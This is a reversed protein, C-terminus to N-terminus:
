PCGDSVNIYLFDRVDFIGDGNPDGPGVTRWLDLATSLDNPTNCGDGDFDFFVQNQSVLVLAQASENEGPPQDTQRVEFWTTENLVDVLTVVAQNAGFVENTNLNEWEWTMGATMCDFQAAFQVAMLGQAITDPQIKVRNGVDLTAAQSVVQGCQGSVLVTYVGEDAATPSSITLVPGTEGLLDADDKRWQYSLLPEGRKGSAAAYNLTPQAEVEFTVATLSSCARTSQPQQTIIPQACKSGAFEDDIRMRVQCRYHGYTQGGYLDNLDPGDSRVRVFFLNLQGAQGPLTVQMGADYPNISWHDQQLFPQGIGTPSSFGLSEAHSDNSRALIQGFGDLLEVVTDLHQSTRDIDLWLEEGSPAQFAFLDVDSTRRLYGIISSGLGEDPPVAAPLLVGLNEASIAQDNTDTLSEPDERELHLSVNRVHALGGINLGEWDGPSPFSSAGNSNTDNMPQGVLDLGAGISDDALSTFLVPFGPSGEVHLMGGVRDPIPATSGTATIGANPGFGKIVLSEDPRSQLRLGGFSHLNPIYVHDLLVHVIDTDDWVCETTLTAGRVWLGNIANAEMRNQRILPGINALPYNVTQAYGTQRGFDILPESNMASANISMAPGDNHHILNEALVPQANRVFVVSEWNEGWGERNGSAASHGSAGENIDSRTIRARAGHIEIPNMAFFGTGIQTVGGAFELLAHDLSLTAQPSAYIGGWDGRGPISLSGDGNTDGFGCVPVSDDSLSTFFIPQDVSGEAFLRAGMGLKLHSGNWKTVMGPAITLGAPQRMEIAPPASFDPGGPNGELVLNVNIVHALDLDDWIASTQQNRAVAQGDSRIALGNIANDHLDFDYSFFGRRDFECEFVQQDHFASEQFSPWDASVAASAAFSIHSNLITPRASSLTIPSILLGLSDVVVQGGGYRADVGMLVNVFAGQQESETRGATRDLDNQIVVGGWDGPAPFTTLPDSDFGITEDKYSTLFVPFDPVGLFQMSGESHDMLSFSGVHFRSRGMKFIVSADIMLNVGQPVVVQTGDALPLSLDDLGVQYSFNDASTETLGDVGGNAVVRVTTGPLAAALADQLSFFPNTIPGIPLSANTDFTRDVFFTSTVDSQRFWHDFVGGPERNGDGDMATLTADLIPTGSQTRKILLQYEGESTGGVASDPEVLDVLRQGSASIALFYTGPQLPLQIRPDRGFYDDNSAVMERVVSGTQQFLTLQANLYSGAIPLREAISEFTYEGATTVEFRYLDIDISDPRFLHRGHVQDHDGPFVAEAVQGFSLAPDSGMVTSAPLDTLEGLDLLQAVHKMATLHWNGLHEDNWTEAADLVVLDAGTLGTLGGPMSVAMPDVASLDGTAITFGSNETESFRVGWSRSLIEFIERARQEQNSNIQNFLPNGMPDQGYEAQFNYDFFTIGYTVDPGAVVHGSPPDLHGPEDDGGPWILDYPQPSIASEILLNASLPGLDEATDYSSGVEIPFTLLSPASLPVSDSSIRLRCTNPVTALNELDDPFTLTVLNRAPDYVASLPVIEIDDSCDLTDMTFFLRYEFVDEASAQDLTVDNFYVLIQDRSQVLANMADRTVPQPVVAQVRALIATKQDSQDQALLEPSVVLLLAFWKGCSSGM